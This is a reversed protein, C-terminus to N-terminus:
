TMSKWGDDYGRQWESSKSAWQAEDARHLHVTIALRERASRIQERAQLRGDEHETMPMGPTVRHHRDRSM